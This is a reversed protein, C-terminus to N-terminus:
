YVLVRRIQKTAGDRDVLRVLYIGPGALDSVAVTSIEDSLEFRLVRRGLEDTIEIRYGSLWGGAASVDVTFRDYAPNPYIELVPAFGEAIGSCIDVTVLQDAQGTCNNTDTFQYTILFSGLGALGPYFIDSLIGVGSFNGGSPSGTLPVSPGLECFVSDLGVIQVPPLPYVTVDVTDSTASCGFSDTFTVFYSGSAESLVV